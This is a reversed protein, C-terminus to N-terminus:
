CDSTIDKYITKGKEKIAKLIRGRRKKLDETYSMHVWSPNEDDGFEWILQDFPLNEKIYNFYDANTYRNSYVDDIDIAEGKCHQSRSSGGIAKNLEPSRYFSSIYIPEGVFIRLPEFLQTATEQMKSLIYSNPFNDIGLREATNSKTAETLSIHTTLQM